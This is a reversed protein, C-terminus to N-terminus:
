RSTRRIACGGVFPVLGAVGREVRILVSQKYALRSGADQEVTLRATGVAKNRLLGILIHLHVHFEHHGLPRVRADDKVAVVLDLDQVARVDLRRCPGMAAPDIRSRFALRAFRGIAVDVGARRGPDVGGPRRPFPLRHVDDELGRSEIFGAVLRGVRFEDFHDVVPNDDLFVVFHGVRM